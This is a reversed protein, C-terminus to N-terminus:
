HKKKTKEEKISNKKLLTSEVTEDDVVLIKAERIMQMFSKCDVVGNEKLWEFESRTFGDKSLDM